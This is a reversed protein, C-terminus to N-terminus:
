RVSRATSRKSSSANQLCNNRLDKITLLFVFDPPFRERNRRVQQNLRETRVGYLAALDRDLLVRQGRIVVIREVIESEAHRM